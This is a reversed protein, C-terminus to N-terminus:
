RDVFLAVYLYTDASKELKKIVAVRNRRGPAISIAKGNLAENLASQPPALYKLKDSQLATTKVVGRRDILYAIAIGRIGAQQTLIAKRNADSLSSDDLDRAMALGEARLIQGHEQVYAEAVELANNIIAKTRTSFWNDLGRDLSISAFAALVIAPVIAIISFLGVIRAHLRSAAARQKHAKLLGYAQWGIVAVAAAILIANVALATSVVAHTPTHPTLGTLILGTALASLLSLPIVILGVWFVQGNADAAARLKQGLRALRTKLRDWTVGNQERCDSAQM